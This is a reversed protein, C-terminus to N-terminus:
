ELYAIKIKRELLLDATVQRHQVLFNQMHLLQSEPFVKVYEGDNGKPILGDFSEFFAEYLYWFHTGKNIAVLLTLATAILGTEEFLERRATEVPTEWRNATALWKGKGGPYKWAPNYKTKDYVLVTKGQPGHVLVGGYLNWNEKGEYNESMEAGKDM